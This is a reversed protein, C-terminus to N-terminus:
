YFHEYNGGENGCHKNWGAASTILKGKYIVSGDDVYGGFGNKARYSYCLAKTDLNVYKQKWEVSGPDRLSQTIADQGIAISMRMMNRAERQIAEIAEAEAKLRGKEAKSAIEEPTKPEPEPASVIAGLGLIVVIWFAAIKASPKTWEM